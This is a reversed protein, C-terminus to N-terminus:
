DWLDKQGLSSSAIFELYANSKRTACFYLPSDYRLWLFTNPLHLANFIYLRESFCGASCSSSAHGPFRPQGLSETDPIVHTLVPSGCSLSWEWCATARSTVTILLAFTIVYLVKLSTLMPDCVTDTVREGIIKM